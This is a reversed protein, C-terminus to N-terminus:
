HEVLPNKLYCMLHIVLASTGFYPTDAIRHQPLGKVLKMIDGVQM